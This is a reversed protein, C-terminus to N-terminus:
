HRMWFDASLCILCIGAGVVTIALTLFIQNHVEPNGEQLSLMYAIGGGGLAILLALWGLWTPRRTMVSNDRKEVQKM